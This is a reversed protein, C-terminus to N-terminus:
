SEPSNESQSATEESSPQSSQSGREFYGDEYQLRVTGIAHGNYDEEIAAIIQVAKKLKKDVDEISGLELTVRDDYSLTIKTADEFTIRTVDKLESKTIAATLRDFADKAAGLDLPRGVKYKSVSHEVLILDEPQEQAIELAKGGGVILFGEEVVFVYEPKQETVHLTVTGPLSRDLKVSAIYPLSESIRDSVERENVRFLNDGLAIGCANLIEKKTYHLTEGEVNLQKVDGEANIESIPFFVTLSLVIMVLLTLPLIAALAVRGKKIKRKTRNVPKKRDAM